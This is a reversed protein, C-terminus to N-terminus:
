WGRLSTPKVRIAVTYEKGFQEPTMNLEAIGERYKRLYAPVKNASPSNTDISAMGIYVIVNENGTEDTNFHLSVSSNQKIHKVKYAKPSSFILFADKDWIFWVPRPQPTHDADVTTLWIVYEKKIMQKAKRELKVKPDSMGEEM